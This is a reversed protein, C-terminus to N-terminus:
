AILMNLWGECLQVMAFDMATQKPEKDNNQKSKPKWHYLEKGCSVHLRQYHEDEPIFAQICKCFGYFESGELVRLVGHSFEAQIQIRRGNHPVMFSRARQEFCWKEMYTCRLRYTLSVHPWNNFLRKPVLVSQQSDLLHLWLKSLKVASYIILYRKGDKRENATIEICLDDNNCEWELFLMNALLIQTQWWISRAKKYLAMRLKRRWRTPRRAFVMTGTTPPVKAESGGASM